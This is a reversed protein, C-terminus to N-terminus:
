SIVSYTMTPSPQDKLWAGLEPHGNGEAYKWAPWTEIRRNSGDSTMTNVEHPDLGYEVLWKCIELHGYKAAVQLATKPCVETLSFVSVGTELILKMMEFNGKWVAVHLAYYYGDEDEGIVNLDYGELAAEVLGEYDDDRLLAIVKASDKITPVPYINVILTLVEGDKVGLGAMTAHDDQLSTKGKVLMMKMKALGSREELQDKLVAVTDEAIVDFQEEDGGLKRVVISMSM